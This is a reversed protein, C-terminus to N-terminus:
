TPSPNEEMVTSSPAGPRQLEAAAVASLAAGVSRKGSPWSILVVAGLVIPPLFLIAHIALAFGLAEAPGVGFTTLLYYMAFEFTGLSAPLSPILPVFPMVGIVLLTAQLYSIPVEMGYALVWASLGLTLWYALTLGISLTLETRARVLSQLSESTSALLSIGALGPRSAMWIFVPVAAVSGAAVLAAGMEYAAFAQLEPLLLLGVGLLLAAIVFDLVRQVGITAVATDRRVGYRLTLLIFQAAESMLRIPSLSNLGIGANQVLFLRHVPVREGLLVQWRYARLVTAMSFFLLTILTDRVHIDQLQVTLSRWDIDRAVLFGVLISIGIGLM